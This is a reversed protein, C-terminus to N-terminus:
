AGGRRRDTELDDFASGTLQPESTGPAPPPYLDSVAGAWVIPTKPDGAPQDEWLTATRGEARAELRVLRSTDEWSFRLRLVGGAREAGALSLEQAALGKGSLVLVGDPLADAAGEDLELLVEAHDKPVPQGTIPGTVAGKWRDYVTCGPHAGDRCEAPAPAIPAQEFAFVDVRRNEDNSVGAATQQALHRDGCGLMEVKADPGVTTGEAQMYELVLASRSADDPKGTPPLGSRKQLAKWAAGTKPGASGDIGGSYDPSGGFPVASLMHQDERVGWRKQADAHAYFPMWEDVSNRLYAAAARARENSLQLNYEARGATDTHGVLLLVREPEAAHQAAVARFTPLASPLPFSKATEFHAAELTALLSRTVADPEDGPKATKTGAPEDGPRAAPDDSPAADEEEGPAATPPRARRTGSLGEVIIVVRHGAKFQVGGRLQDLSVQRQEDPPDSTPM